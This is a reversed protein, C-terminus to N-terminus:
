LDGGVLGPVQAQDSPSKDKLVTFDFRKLEAAMLTMDAEMRLTTAQRIRLKRAVKHVRATRALPKTCNVKRGWHCPSM